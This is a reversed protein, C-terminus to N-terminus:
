NTLKTQMNYNGVTLKSYCCVTHWQWHYTEAMKRAARSGQPAVAHRTQRGALRRLPGPLLVSQNLHLGGLGVPLLLCDQLVRQIELTTVDIQEEAAIGARGHLVECHLHSVCLRATCVCLRATCVCLWATCVCGHLACVCGHLACVAMCHVCVALAFHTHHICTSVMLTRCASSTTSPGALGPYQNFSGLLSSGMSVTAM